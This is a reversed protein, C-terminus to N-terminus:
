NPSYGMSFDPEEPRDKQEKAFITAIKSVPFEVELLISSSSSDINQCRAETSHNDILSCFSKWRSSMGIEAMKQRNKCQRWASQILCAAWTKRQHSYFWFIHKLHKSHMMRFTNAVYRLFFFTNAVFKLDDAQLSFAELETITKM